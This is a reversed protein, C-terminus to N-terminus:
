FTSQNLQMNLLAFNENVLHVQSVSLHVIQRKIRKFKFYQSFVQSHREYSMIFCLCVVVHIYVTCYIYASIIIRKNPYIFDFVFSYAVSVIIYFFDTFFQLFLMEACLSMFLGVVYLINRYFKYYLRIIYYIYNSKFKISHVHMNNWSLEYFIIHATNINILCKCLQSRALMNFLDFMGQKHILPYYLM